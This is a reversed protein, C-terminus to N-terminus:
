CAFSSFIYFLKLRAPFASSPQVGSGRKSGRSGELVHWFLGFYGNESVYSFGRFRQSGLSQSMQTLLSSSGAEQVGNLCAVLSRWVWISDTGFPVINMIAIKSNTDIGKKRIRSKRLFSGSQDYPELIFHSHNKSTNFSKVM